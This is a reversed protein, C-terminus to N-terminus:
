AEWAEYLDDSFCPENVAVSETEWSALRKEALTLYKKEKEFGIFRRGMIMSAVGTTGSRLFPDLVVDGEKSWSSIHDVALALPFAALHSLMIENGTTYTWINDRCEKQSKKKGPQDQILNITSPKGKTLIFMYEFAQRYRIKSKLPFARKHIMVDHILFGDAVFSLAQRFSSGKDDPTDSVIWVVTGGDKVVRYLDSAINRFYDWNMRKKYERIGDYPPSTVVLDVSADPIKKLLKVCDGQKIVYSVGDTLM